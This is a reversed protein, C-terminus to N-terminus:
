CRYSSMFANRPPTYLAVNRREKQAMQVLELFIKSEVPALALCNSEMCSSAGDEGDDGQCGEIVM